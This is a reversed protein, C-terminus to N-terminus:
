SNRRATSVHPKLAGSSCGMLLAASCRPLRQLREAPLYRGGDGHGCYVYLDKSGLATSLADASPPTGAVGEWPPRVFSNEFVSQTRALDGGPNLVYYADSSLAGGGGAAVMRTAAGDCNALFAACPLRCVSLSRLVPVSGRAPVLLAGDAPPQYASGKLRPLVLLRM